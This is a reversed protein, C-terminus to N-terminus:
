KFDLSIMTSLIVVTALSYMFMQRGWRTDNKSTFGQWSLYLWYGGMAGIAILYVYGTYGFFTLLFSTPVFATIYALMHKKTVDIGKISPLTPISAAQYEKMRYIAIAYFHPMQWLVLIVFLLQAGIDFRNTVAVYGIVPPLAGSISGILTGYITHYKYLSYLVVYVLFGFLAILTALLNTFSYLAAIGLFGLISGYTLAARISLTGKALARDKTREMKRDSERDIYNNFVCASAIVLSLGLLTGFFLKWDLNGRSALAFGGIVTVLNGLIIGPKTILYYNIIM